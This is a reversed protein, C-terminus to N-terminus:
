AQDYKTLDNSKAKTGTQVTKLHKSRQNLNYQEKRTQRAQRGSRTRM